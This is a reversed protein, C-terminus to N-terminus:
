RPGTLIHNQYSHKLISLYEGVRWVEGHHLIDALPIRGDEMTFDSDPRQKEHKALDVAEQHLTLAEQYIQSGEENYLKANDFMLNVDYMFQELTSYKKRKMKRKIMALDMPDRIISYYQPLEEKSPLTEFSSIMLEGNDNKSRRLGKMISKMRAEMPTDVRPPRGRRKREATEKGDVRKAATSTRGRRRKPKPEDDSDEEDDEEEEDDDEEEEEEDEPQDEDRDIQMEDAPPIEGLFPWATKDKAVVGQQVLKELQKEVIEKILLADVYAQSHPVNYLQANHTILAWDRVFEPFNKYEHGNIKKKIQSMAMPESIVDYYDPVARRNVMRHFLKSPDDGDATRYQYINNLLTQM